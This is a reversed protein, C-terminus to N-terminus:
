HLDIVVHLFAWSPSFPILHNQDTMCLPRIYIIGCFKLTSKTQFSTERHLSSEGILLHIELTTQVKVLHRFLNLTMIM